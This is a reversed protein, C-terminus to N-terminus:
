FTVGSVVDWAIAIEASIEEDTSSVTITEVCAVCWAFRAGYSDPDLMVAKCLALRLKDWVNKDELAYIVVSFESAYRLAGATVRALFGEDVALAAADAFNAM